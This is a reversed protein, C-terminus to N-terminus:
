QHKWANRVGFDRGRIEREREDESARTGDEAAVNRLPGRLWAPLSWTYDLLFCIGEMLCLGAKLTPRQAWAGHRVCPSHGRQSAALSGSKLIKKVNKKQVCVCVCM